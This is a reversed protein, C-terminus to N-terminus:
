ELFFNVFMYTNVWTQSRFPRSKINGKHSRSVVESIIRTNSIRKCAAPMTSNIIEDRWDRRDGNVLVHDLDIQERRTSMRELTNYLYARLLQHDWSSTVIIWHHRWSSTIIVNCLWSSVEFKVNRDCVQAFIGNLPRVSFQWESFSSM